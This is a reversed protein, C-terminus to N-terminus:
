KINKRQGIKGTINQMISNSLSKLFDKKQTSGPFFDKEVHSETLYFVNEANVKEQYDAVEITGLANLLNKIFSVYTM